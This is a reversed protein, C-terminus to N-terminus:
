FSVLLLAAQKPCHQTQLTRLLRLQIPHPPKQLQPQLPATKLSFLIAATGSIDANVIVGAGISTAGTNDISIDGTVAVATAVNSGNGLLIHASTLSALKSFAIAASANIDGNVITGDSIMTSTVSGTDGTTVVTGTVDGFVITRDATPDTIAITLENNDATSGEFVLSGTNGILLEGTVTGGAKALKETDVEQLATQVNTSAINGFPTFSINSAQQAAVFSSVDLLEWTIGNSLLIDPPNLSVAPAPATGTGLESVVLYYRNNDQSAAPL